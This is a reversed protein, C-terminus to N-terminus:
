KKYGRIINRGKDPIKNLVGYNELKFTM